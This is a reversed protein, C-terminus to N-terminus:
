GLPLLSKGGANGGTWCDLWVGAQGMVTALINDDLAGLTNLILQSFASSPPLLKELTERKREPQDILYHLFLCLWLEGKAVFPLYIYIYIIIIIIIIIIVIIIITIIIIIISSPHNIISSQHWTIGGNMFSDWSRWHGSPRIKRLVKSSTIARVFVFFLVDSLSKIAYMKLPLIHDRM